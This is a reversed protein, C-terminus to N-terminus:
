KKILSELTDDMTIHKGSDYCKTVYDSIAQNIVRCFQYPGAFNIQM